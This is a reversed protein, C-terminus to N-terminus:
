RAAIEQMTSLAETVYDSSACETIIQQYVKYAEKERGGRYLDRASELYKIAKTNDERKIQSRVANGMLSHIKSILFERDYSPLNLILLDEYIKLAKEYEGQKELEAAKRKLNKVKRKLEIEEGIQEEVEMNRYLINRLDGLLPGLYEAEDIHSVTKQYDEELYSMKIDDLVTGREYLVLKERNNKLSTLLEKIIDVKSSEVTKFKMSEYVKLAREYQGRELYFLFRANLKGEAITVFLSGEYPFAELGQGEELDQIYNRLEDLERLIGEKQFFLQQKKQEYLELYKNIRREAENHFRFEFRQLHVSSEFHGRAEGEDFLTVNEKFIDRRREMSELFAHKDDELKKIEGEIHALEKGKQQTLHIVDKKVSDKIGRSLYSVVPCNATEVPQFMEMFPFRLPIKWKSIELDPLEIFHFLYNATFFVVALSFLFFVIALIKSHIRVRGPLDPTEENLDTFEDQVDMRM